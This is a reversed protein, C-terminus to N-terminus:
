HNLHQVSDINIVEETIQKFLGHLKSLKVLKGPQEQNYNQCFKVVMIVWVQWHLILSLPAMDVVHLLREVLWDVLTLFQLAERHEGLVIFTDIM